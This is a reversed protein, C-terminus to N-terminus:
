SYKQLLYLKSHNRLQQKISPEEERRYIACSVLRFQHCSPFFLSNSNEKVEAPYAKKNVTHESGKTKDSGWHFHFQALQYTGDLSGGTVEPDETSDVVDMQVSICM